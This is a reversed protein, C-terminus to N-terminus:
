VFVQGSDFMAALVFTGPGEFTCLLTSGLRAARAAPTPAVLLEPNYEEQLIGMADFPRTCDAHTQPDGM